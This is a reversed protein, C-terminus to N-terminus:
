KDSRVGYVAALLALVTAVGYRWDGSALGVLTGAAVIMAVVRWHVNRM